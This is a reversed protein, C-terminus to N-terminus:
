HYGDVILGDYFLTNPIKLLYPHMRYQIDLMISPYNENELREIM